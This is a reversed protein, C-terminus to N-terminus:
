DQRGHRAEWAALEQDLDVKPSSDQSAPAVTDVPRLHVRAKAGKPLEIDVASAGTEKSAALLAKIQSKTLAVASRAMYTYDFM